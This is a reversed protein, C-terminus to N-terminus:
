FRFPMKPGFKQLAFLAAAPVLVGAASKKPVLAASAAAAPAQTSDYVIAWLSPGSATRKFYKASDTLRNKIGLESFDAARGKASIPSMKQNIYDFTGDPKINSATLYQVWSGNKYYYVKSM